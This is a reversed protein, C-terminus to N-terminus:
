ICLNSGMPAFTGSTCPLCDAVETAVVLTTYTNVPCQNCGTAGIISSYNGQGCPFCVEDQLYYGITCNTCVKDNPCDLCGNIYESCVQCERLLPYLFTGSPCPMCYVGTGGPSYYNPACESCVQNSSNTGTPGGLGSGITCDQCVNSDTCSWCNDPCPLCETQDSSPYSGTQHFPSCVSCEGTCGGPIDCYTGTICPYCETMDHYQGLTCLGCSTSGSEVALACEICATAGYTSSYTGSICEQCSEDTYSISDYEYTFSYGYTGPPCASCGYIYASSPVPYDPAYGPLCESCELPSHCVGCGELYEFSSCPQCPDPGSSTYGSPCEYCMSNIMQYGPLCENCQMISNCTSCYPSCPTCVGGTLYFQIPCSLCEGGPACSACNNAMCQDNICIDNVLTFGSSCTNCTVGDYCVSCDPIMPCATAHLTLFLLSICQVLFWM